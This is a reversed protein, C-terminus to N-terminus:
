FSRRRMKKSMKSMKVGNNNHNVKVNYLGSLKTTKTLFRSKDRRSRNPIAMNNIAKRPLTSAINSIKYTLGMDNTIYGHKRLQNDITKNTKLVKHQSGSSLPYHGRGRELKYKKYIYFGLPDELSTLLLNKYPLNTIFSTNTETFIEALKLLQSGIGAKACILSLYLIDSYEKLFVLGCINLRTKTTSGSRVNTRERTKITTEIENTFLVFSFTNSEYQEIGYRTNVTHKCLQGINQKLVLEYLDIEHKLPVYIKKQTKVGYHIENGVNVKLLLINCTVSHDKIKSFIDPLRKLYNVAIDGMRTSRVSHRSKSM